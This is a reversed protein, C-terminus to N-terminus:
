SVPRGLKNTLEGFVAEPAQDANVDILLGRSRYYDLLPETQSRYAELRQVVVDERDDARQTLEGGCADCVGDQKTPKFEVHWIAGCQACNRRGTLRRVLIEQPVEFYAVHTLGVSAASADAPLSQDLAQAQPLTRPFGDLIWADGADPQGIRELIMAIILEDPVLQGQDMFGQAREGLATGRNRHERLMDGSSIHLSEGRDALMKAQTGKGAGPAGLFVARM